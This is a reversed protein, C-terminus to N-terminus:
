EHGAELEKLCKQAYNFQKYLGIEGDGYVYGKFLNKQNAYIELCERMKEFDRLKGVSNELEAIEELLDDRREKYKEISM